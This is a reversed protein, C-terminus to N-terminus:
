PQVGSGTRPWLFVLRASHRIIGAEAGADPGSGVFLDARVPGRIASGTDQAITLGRFGRWDEPKPSAAERESLAADRQSDVWVPTGFLHWTRDVALSALPRLPTGAAGVPGDQPSLDSVEHFFIFSQNRRMLRLGEQPNDTLWQRLVPMTISAPDIGETEALLRGISSYAHGSKGAYAVRMVSGDSFRLRASGQVHIFFADIWSEVFAMELGRGDLFGTEIAARDPYPELGNPTERGFLVDPDWGEPLTRNKVSVLDAPRRYLPVAFRENRTRSASVEPEFYGTLFGTAERGDRILVKPVFHEEFFTKPSPPEPEALAASCVALLESVAM